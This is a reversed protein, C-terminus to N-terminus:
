TAKTVDMCPHARYGYKIHPQGVYFLSKFRQLEELDYILRNLQPGVVVTSNKELDEDEEIGTETIEPDISEDIEL